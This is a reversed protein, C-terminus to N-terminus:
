TMLANETVIIANLRGDPEVKLTWISTGYFPTVDSEKL